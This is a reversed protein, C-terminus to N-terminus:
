KENKNRFSCIFPMMMQGFEVGSGEGSLCGRRGCAPVPCPTSIAVGQNDPAPIYLSTVLKVLAMGSAIGAKTQSGRGCGVGGGQGVGGRGVGGRGVGGAGRGVGEPWGLAPQPEPAPSRWRTQFPTIKNRSVLFRVM